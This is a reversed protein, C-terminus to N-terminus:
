ASGKPHNVGGRSFDNEGSESFDVVTPTAGDFKNASRAAEKLLKRSPDDSEADDSKDLMGTLKELTGTLRSLETM